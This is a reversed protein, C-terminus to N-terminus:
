SGLKVFSIFIDYERKGPAKYHHHVKHFRAYLPKTHLLRHWYYEAANEYIVAIGLQRIINVYDESSSPMEFTMKSHGRTCLETVVFAFCTATLLNVATLVVHDPARGAKDTGFLPIGFIEGLYGKKPQTKWSDVEKARAYYFFVQLALNQFMYGFFIIGANVYSFPSFTMMESEPLM